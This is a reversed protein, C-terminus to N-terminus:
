EKIIKNIINLKNQSKISATSPLSEKDCPISLGSDIAGKVLAYIRSKQVNRHLGFDLIAEKIKGKAKLGILYGTLYSAVKNKLSGPNDKPWGKQLLHSSTVGFLVKDQAVESVVIQAILYKNTKRVVLRPKGSKLMALRAKYDTKGELRRRRPLKM